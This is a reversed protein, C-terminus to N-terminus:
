FRFGPPANGTAPLRQQAPAAPIESQMRSDTSAAQEAKTPVKPAAPESPAFQYNRPLQNDQPYSAATLALNWAGLEFGLQQNRGILLVPLQTAGSIQRLKDIDENSSVSKEAFPVGRNKLFDRAEACPACQAGTFLTVPHKKSADALAYPLAVSASESPNLTKKELQKASNPPPLDSYTIKGDPGVWKYLQAQANGMVSLALLGALILGSRKM